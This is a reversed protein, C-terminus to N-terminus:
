KNSGHHCPLQCHRLSQDVDSRNGVEHQCEGHLSLHGPQQVACFGGQDWRSSFYSTLYIALNLWQPPMKNKLSCIKERLWSWFQVSFIHFSWSAAYSFGGRALELSCWSTCCGTRPYSSCLEKKWFFSKYAFLHASSLCPLHAWKQCWSTYSAESFFLGPPGNGVQCWKVRRFIGPFCTWSSM